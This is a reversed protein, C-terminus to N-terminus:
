KQKKVLRAVGIARCICYQQASIVVADIRPKSICRRAGLKPGGGRTWGHDGRGIISQRLWGACELYHNQRLRSHGIICVFEGRAIEFDVDAFVPKSPNFSKPCGKSQLFNM